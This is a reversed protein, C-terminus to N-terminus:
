EKNVLKVKDPVIKTFAEVMASYDNLLLYHLNFEEGVLITEMVESRYKKQCLINYITTRYVILGLASVLPGCIIGIWQIIFSLPM